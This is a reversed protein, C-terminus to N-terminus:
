KRRFSEREGPDYGYIKIGTRTFVQEARGGRVWYDTLYHGYSGLGFSKWAPLYAKADGLQKVLQEFYKISRDFKKTESIDDYIHDFDCSWSQLQLIELSPPLSEYFKSRIEPRGFKTSREGPLLFPLQIRLRKLSPFENFPIPERNGAGDNVLIHVNAKCYTNKPIDYVNM